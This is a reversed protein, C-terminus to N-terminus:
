ATVANHLQRLFAALRERTCKKAAHEVRRGFNAGNDCMEYYEGSPTLEEYLARMTDNDCDELRDFTSDQLSFEARLARAFDRSLGCQNWSQVYDAHERESLDMDDLVPYNELSRELENAIREAQTGPQVLVLEFWGNAWHGFRHVQVTDSEGGLEKLGVAFNSEAIPGSDRNRSFPAVYWEGISLRDAALGASDFSTPRFESYKQM